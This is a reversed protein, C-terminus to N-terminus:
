IFLLLYCYTCVVSESDYQIFYNGWVCPHFDALNRQLDSKADNAVRSFCAAHSM